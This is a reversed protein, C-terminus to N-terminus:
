VRAAEAERQQHRREPQLAFPNKVPSAAGCRFCAAARPANRAGCQGHQGAGVSQAPPRAPCVWAGDDPIVGGRPRAAGCTGCARDGKTNSKSECRPCQWTGPCHERCTHCVLVGVENRKGCKGCIWGFALREKRAERM